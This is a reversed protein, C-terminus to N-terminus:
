LNWNSLLSDVEDLGDLFAGELFNQLAPGSLTDGRRLLEEEKQKEEDESWVSSRHAEADNGENASFPSSGRTQPHADGSSKLYSSLEEAKIEIKPRGNEEEDELGKEQRPSSWSLSSTSSLALVSHPTGKRGSGGMRGFPKLTSSTVSTHTTAAREKDDPLASGERSISLYTFPDSSFMEKSSLSLRGSGAQSERIMPARVRPTWTRPTQSESSDPLHVLPPGRRREPKMKELSPKLNNELSNTSTRRTSRLLNKSEKSISTSVRMTPCDDPSDADEAEKDRHDIKSPIPFTSLSPPPPTTLKRERKTCHRGKM